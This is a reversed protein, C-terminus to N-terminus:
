PLPLPQGDEIKNGTDDDKKTETKDNTIRKVLLMILEAGFFGVATGYVAAPSIQTLECIRLSRETIYVVYALCFVVIIRMFLGKFRKKTKKRM